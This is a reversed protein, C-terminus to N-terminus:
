WTVLERALDVLTAGTLQPTPALPYLGQGKRSIFAAQLGALRAGAIDWGHAAVMMAEEPQVGLQEVAQQYVATKPKYQRMTDVSMLQEFYGTLGALEMQQTLAEHSSNTLTVMRYGAQQLAKLGDKVDDYPPLNRMMQGVEQMLEQLKEEPLSVEMKDATLQLVAKGIEGFDHYNDTVTDVLSYHLLLSVWQNGAFESDFEMNIKRKLGSMDLLTGNVDFVLVKPKPSANEATM